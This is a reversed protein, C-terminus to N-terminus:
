RLPRPGEGVGSSPLAWTSEACRFGLNIFASDSPYGLRLGSRVANRNDLWSGGRVVRSGTAVPGGPDSFPSQAYYDSEYWDKVWEAVNGEMDLVGYPSAGSPYSGVASTDGIAFNYNLLSAQPLENGWPYTRNDSGRTAREWEAETPLRGGAWRCFTDADDWTVYIVPYAEYQPNGFYDPRTYSSFRNPPQCVRQDVCRAYQANTIETRDMWFQSIEVMHSPMENRYHPNGMQFKGAPIFAQPIVDTLPESSHRVDVTDAPIPPPGCASLTAALFVGLAGM